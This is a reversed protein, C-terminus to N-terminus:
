SRVDVSEPPPAAAAPTRARGAAAAAIVCASGVSLQALRVVFAISLAREPADGLGLAGAFARYVSDVVGLQSPVFDGMTAGVLHIGHALMAGRGSLAGGVAFLVLGYECLEATRGLSCVLTARWPIRRRIAPDLAPSEVAGPLLRRRWGDLVRGLRGDWLIVLLAVAFVAQVTANGVLLLALPSSLGFLAAVAAAEILSVLGNASQYAAQLQTSTAAARPVGLSSSLVTARTVEGAARGAPVLVMLAYALASSRVWTRAPIGRADKGLIVQLAAFDTAIQLSELALVLPMWPGAEILVRAVRQPGADNVLYAVVGLGALVLLVRAVARSSGFRRRNV